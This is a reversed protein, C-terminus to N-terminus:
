YLINERITGEFLFDDQLVVGLRSRYSALSVTSLDKGDITVTGSTPTLFSAALGAITTKGSGSSGVLATVSGPPADFRIGHLVEKGEEYAFRVNEFRIHGHMEQLQIPRKVPDDEEPMRM